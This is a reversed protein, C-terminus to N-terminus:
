CLLILPSLKMGVAFMIIAFDISHSANATIGDNNLAVYALGALLKLTEDSQSEITDIRINWDRLLIPIRASAFQFGDYVHLDKVPIEKGQEGIGREFFLDVDDQKERGLVMNALRLPRGLIKFDPHPLAITGFLQSM